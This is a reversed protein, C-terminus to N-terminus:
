SRFDNRCWGMYGSSNGKDLYISSVVLRYGIPLVRVGAEGAFESVAQKVCCLYRCRIEGNGTIRM